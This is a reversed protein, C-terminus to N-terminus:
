RMAVVVGSTVASALESAAVVPLARRWSIRETIAIGTTSLVLAWATAASGYIPVLRLYRDEPVRLLYCGMDPLWFLVIMPPTQTFALVSLDAELTGTGGARASLRRVMVAFLSMWLLTLPLCFISEWLYYREAPIFTLLRGRPRRGRSYSRFAALAYLAGFLATAALGGRASPAAAIETIARRPRVLTQALTWWFRRM